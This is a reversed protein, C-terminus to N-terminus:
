ESGGGERTAMQDKVPHPLCPSTSSDRPHRWLLQLEVLGGDEDGALKLEVPGFLEVDRMGRSFGIRWQRPHSRYRGVWRGGRGCALHSVEV